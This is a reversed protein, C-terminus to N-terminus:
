GEENMQNSQEEITEAPVTETPAKDPKLWAAKWKNEKEQPMVAHDPIGQMSGEGELETRYTLHMHKARNLLMMYKKEAAEWAFIAYDIEEAEGAQNFRNKANEWMRHAEQVEELLLMGEEALQNQRESEERKEQRRELWQAIWNM